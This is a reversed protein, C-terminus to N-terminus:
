HYINFKGCNMIVEEFILDIQYKLSEEDLNATSYKNLNMFQDYFSKYGENYYQSQDDQMLVKKRNNVMDPIDNTLTAKGHAEEKLTVQKNNYELNANVNANDKNKTKTSKKDIKYNKIEDSQGKNNKNSVQYDGYNGYDAYDGFDNYQNNKHPKKNFEYPMEEENHNVNFEYPLQETKVNNKVNSNFNTKNANVNPNANVNSNANFEPEFYYADNNDMEDHIFYDNIDHNYKADLKTPEPKAEDKLPMSNLLADFDINNNQQMLHVSKTKGNLDYSNNNALNSPQTNNNQKISNNVQINSQTNLNPNNNTNLNANFNSNTYSKSNTNSNNTQAKTQNGNNGVLNVGFSGVQENYRNNENNVKLSNNISNSVHDFAGTNDYNIFQNQKTNVSPNINQNNNVNTSKGMSVNANIKTNNNAYGRQSLIPNQNRLDLDTETYMNKDKAIKLDENVVKENEMTDMYKSFFNKQGDNINNAQSKTPPKNDKSTGGGSLNNSFLLDIDINNKKSDM